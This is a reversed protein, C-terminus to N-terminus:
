RALWPLSAMSFTSRSSALAFSEIPERCASDARPLGFRNGGFLKATDEVVDFRDFLLRGVDLAVQFVSDLGHIARQQRQLDVRRQRGRDV